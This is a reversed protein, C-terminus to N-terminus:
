GDATPKQKKAPATPPATQKDLEATLAAVQAALRDREASLVGVDAEFKARLTDVEGAHEARVKAIAATYNSEADSLQEMAALVRKEADQHSAAIKAHYERADLIQRDRDALSEAHRSRMDAIEREAAMVASNARAAEREAAVVRDNLNVPPPEAHAVVKVRGPMSGDPAVYDEPWIVHLSGPAALFDRIENPHADYETPTPPWARGAWPFPVSGRARVTLHVLRPGASATDGAM